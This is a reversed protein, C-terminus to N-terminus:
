KEEDFDIYDVDVDDEEDMIELFPEKFAKTTLKKDLTLLLSPLLILNSFMAAILTFSILKGLSETGGFSSILFVSFGVFLVISSYIMSNATEKLANIVSIKIDSNNLKLEMRYRSLFHITNDVSIGLAISFILITSPKLPIGYYGMLAVTLIQPILNPILAIVVMKSSNFLLFMIGGIIGIALLLSFMLNNVLFETGELFVVSTGTLNVNYKEPNFIKDIKPELDDRIAQIEPSSINAMQVTIRTIQLNSDVFSNILTRKNQGMNKPLYSMIFVKENSNLLQYKEPDGNYYAQKSVKVVDAVSISKSFIPYTALTDQLRSIRKLTSSKLVGKPKKTDIMIEFPLIGKFQKELFMMDKYMKGDQPIDDVVNGTTKVQFMGYVGIIVIIVTVIYVKTRSFLVLSMLKDVVSHLGKRELHKLHRIKPESVFSFFIPILTISLIFVMLISLAAVIGFEVLLRNRTIIFAAFGVATTLNTLFMAGGVRHIMRALAKIKQKHSKYESHYKNLLFINNEVVLIIILPPLIGTLLTIEFGFLQIFGVVWIVSVMMVILPFFVAKFSRFFLFLIFSAILM